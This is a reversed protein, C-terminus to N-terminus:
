LIEFIFVIFSFIEFSSFSRAFLSFPILIFWYDAILTTNCELKCTAKVVVSLPHVSVNLFGLTRVTVPRNFVTKELLVYSFLVARWSKGTLEAPFSEIVLTEHQVVLSEVRALVLLADAVEASSHVLAHLHQVTVHSVRVLVQAVVLAGVAVLGKVVLLPQLPVDVALVGLRADVGAGDAVGAVVALVVQPGVHSLVVAVHDVGVRHLQQGDLVVAEADGEVVALSAEVRGVVLM